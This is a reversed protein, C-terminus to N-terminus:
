SISTTLTGSWLTRLFCSNCGPVAYLNRTAPILAQPLPGQLSIDAKLVHRGPNGPAGEAMLILLTLTIVKIVIPKMKWSIKYHM